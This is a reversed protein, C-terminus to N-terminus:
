YKPKKSYACSANLIASQHYLQYYMYSFSSAKCVLFLDVIVKPNSATLWTGEVARRTATGAVQVMPIIAGCDSSSSSSSSGLPYMGGTEEKEEKKSVCSDNSLHEDGAGERVVAEDDRGSWVVFQDSCSQVVYM